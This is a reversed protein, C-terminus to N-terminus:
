PRSASSIPENIFANCQNGFPVESTCVTLTTLSVVEGVQPHLETTLM